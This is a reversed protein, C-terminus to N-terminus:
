AVAMSLRSGSEEAFVSFGFMPEREGKTWRAMEWNVRLYRIGPDRALNLLISYMGCYHKKSFTVLPQRSWESEDRSGWISVVLSGQELVRTIDLTIVMLKGRYDNFDCVPGAGNATTICEELLYAHTALTAM